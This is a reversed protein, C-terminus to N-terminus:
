DVNSVCKQCLSFSLTHTRARESTITFTPHRRLQRTHPHYIFYQAYLRYSNSQSLEPSSLFVSTVFLHASGGARTTQTM